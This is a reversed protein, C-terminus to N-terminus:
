WTGLFLGVSCFNGILLGVPCLVAILDELITRWPLYDWDINWCPLHLFDLNRFNESLAFPGLWYDWLSSLQLWSGLFLIPCIMAMMYGCIIRCPLYMHTSDDQAKGTARRTGSTWRLGMSRTGVRLTAKNVVIKGADAALGRRWIKIQVGINQPELVNQAANAHRICARSVSTLHEKPVRLSSKAYKAPHFTAIWVGGHTTIKAASGRSALSARTRTVTADFANAYHKNMQKAKVHFAFPLIYKDKRKWIRWNTTITTALPILIKANGAHIRRKNGSASQHTLQSEAHPRVYKANPENPSTDIKQGNNSNWKM